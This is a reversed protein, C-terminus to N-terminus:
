SSEPSGPQTNLGGYHDWEEGWDFEDSADEATEAADWINHTSGDFSQAEHHRHDRIVVSNLALELGGVPNHTWLLRIQALRTRLRRLSDANKAVCQRAGPLGGAFPWLLSPDGIAATDYERPYHFCAARWYTYEFLVGELTATINPVQRDRLEWWRDTEFAVLDEELRHFEDRGFADVAPCYQETFYGYNPAV